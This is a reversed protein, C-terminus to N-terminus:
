DIIGIRRFRCALRILEEHDGELMLLHNGLPKEKLLRISGAPLEIEVQTRCADALRPRSVVRGVAIFARDLTDSFRFITVEKAKISGDVALSWGTEYHSPLEWRSM